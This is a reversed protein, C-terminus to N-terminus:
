RQSLNKSCMGSQGKFWGEEWPRRHSATVMQQAYHVNNKIDFLVSKNELFTLITDNWM